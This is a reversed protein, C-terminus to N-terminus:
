HTALFDVVAWTERGVIGDVNMGFFRQLDKIRETTQRGFIGDITIGGGAKVSIVSQLYQIGSGRAGETVVPKEMHPWDGFPNPKIAAIYNLVAWTNPGVIGDVQLGFLSQVDKVRKETHPGFIGDVTIDGGAHDRIITQVRVVADGRSELKLIPQGPQSPPPPPTPAAGGRVPMGANIWAFREDGPCQTSHWVRHGIAGDPADTHDAVYRVCDRFGSKESEPFANDEGALWMIGHSVRNGTNTGNAANIVNLGRGEFVVGHPCIVFNYAIDSWGRGDMHFNQVGRVM